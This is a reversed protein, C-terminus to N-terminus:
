AVSLIFANGPKEVTEDTPLKKQFEDFFKDYYKINRRADDVTSRDYLDIYYQRDKLHTIM